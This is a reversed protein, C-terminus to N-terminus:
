SIRTSLTTLSGASYLKLNRGSCSLSSAIEEKTAPKTDKGVPYPFDTTNYAARELRIEM